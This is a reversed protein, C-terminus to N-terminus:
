QAPDTSGPAERGNLLYVIRDQIMQEMNTDQILLSDVSELTLSQLSNTPRGCGTNTKKLPDQLDLCLDIM